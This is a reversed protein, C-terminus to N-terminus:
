IEFLKLLKFRPVTDSFRDTPKTPIDEGRKSSPVSSRRTNARRGRLSPHRRRAELFSPPADGCAQVFVRIRRQEEMGVGTFM